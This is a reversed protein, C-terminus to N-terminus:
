APILSPAFFHHAHHDHPQIAFDAVRFSQYTLLAPVSLASAAAPANILFCLYSALAILSSSM